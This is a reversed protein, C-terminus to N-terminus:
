RCDKLDTWRFFRVANDFFIARRQADTLYDAERYAEISQGIAEPWTMQDSGFMIRDGLGATIMRKLYAHFWPRHEAWHIAGLDAYVNSYSHMLAESADGFPFGMHMIFLRLKPHRVIVEEILLPDGIAARHNPSGMRVIDAPGSGIHIGVPLDLEEALAWLPELRPDNPAVGEYQPDVESISAIKGQRHLDRIAQLDATTPIDDLQYALRTRDGGAAVMQEAAGHNGGSVLARVVGLRKMESLTLARHGASDGVLSPKGTSLNPVRAALRPGDAYAHIHVDIIPEAVGTCQPPAAVAPGAVLFAAALAVRM